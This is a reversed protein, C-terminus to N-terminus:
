PRRSAMDTGHVGDITHLIPSGSLLGDTQAWPGSGGAYAPKLASDLVRQASADAFTVFLAPQIPIDEKAPNYETDRARLLGKLSPQYVNAFTQGRWQYPGERTTPRWFTPDTLFTSSYRFDTWIRHKESMKEDVFFTNDRFNNSPYYHALAINWSRDAEFYLLSQTVWGCCEVQTPVSPRTFIPAFDQYDNAYVSFIAGHQKAKALTVSGKAAIKVSRLSGLLLSTLVGIILIVIILEILTFAPLTRMSRLVFQSATKHM